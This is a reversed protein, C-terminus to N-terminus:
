FYYCTLSYYNKSYNIYRENLVAFLFELRNQSDSSKVIGM